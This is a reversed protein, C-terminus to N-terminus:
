LGRRRGGTWIGDATPLAGAPPVVKTATSLASPAYEGAATGPSTREDAELLVTGVGPDAGFKHDFHLLIMGLVLALLPDTTEATRGPLFMQAVELLGLQVGIIV